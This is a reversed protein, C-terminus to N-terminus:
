VQDTYKALEAAISRIEDSLVLRKWSGRTRKLEDKLAKLEKRLREVKATREMKRDEKRTEKLM